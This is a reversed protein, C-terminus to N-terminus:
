GYKVSCFLPSSVLSLSTLGSFPILSLTCNFSPSAYLSKSAPNTQPEHLLISISFDVFLWSASVPVPGTTATPEVTVHFYTTLFM